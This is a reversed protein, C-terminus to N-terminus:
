LESLVEKRNTKVCFCDISDPVCQEVMTPPLLISQKRSAVSIEMVPVTASELRTVTVKLLKKESVLPLAVKLFILGVWISHFM